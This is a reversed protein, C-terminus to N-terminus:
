SLDGEVIVGLMTLLYLMFLFAGLYIGLASIVNPNRAFTITGTTFTGIGIAMCVVDWFM